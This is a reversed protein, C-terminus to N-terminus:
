PALQADSETDTHGHVGDECRHHHSEMFAGINMDSLSATRHSTQQLRHRHLLNEAADVPLNLPTNNELFGYRQEPIRRM